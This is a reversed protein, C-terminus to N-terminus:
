FKGQSIQNRLLDRLLDAHRIKDQRLQEFVRCADQDNAKQCDEIYTDLVDVAKGANFLETVVDYSVDSMAEVRGGSMPQMQSM